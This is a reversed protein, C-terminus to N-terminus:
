GLRPGVKTPAANFRIVTDHSDIADGVVADLLVGSNGVVACRGLSSAGGSHGVGAHQVLDNTDPLVSTLESAAARLEDYERFAMIPRGGCSVGM